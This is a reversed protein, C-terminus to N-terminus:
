CFDFANGIWRVKDGLIEIVDFRIPCDTHIRHELCYFQATRCIKQQKRLDVAEAPYGSAKTRRAKVEIFVLYEKERAILDIEGQRCRYNYELIEFGKKELYAAALQEGLSGAKRKERKGTRHM